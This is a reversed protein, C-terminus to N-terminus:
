SVGAVACVLAGRVHSEGPRRPRRPADLHTPLLLACHSAQASAELSFVCVCFLLALQPKSHPSSRPGAEYPCRVCGVLLAASLVTVQLERNGQAAAAGCANARANAHTDPAEERPQLEEGGRPAQGSAGAWGRAADSRRPRASVAGADRAPLLAGLAVAAHASALAPPSTQGTRPRAREAAPRPRRRRSTRTSSRQATPLPTRQRTTPATNGRPRQLGRLPRVLEGCLGVRQAQALPPM